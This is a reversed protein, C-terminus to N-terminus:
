LLAVQQNSGMAQEAQKRIAGLVVLGPTASGVTGQVRECLHNILLICWLSAKLDIQHLCEYCVNGKGQHSHSTDLQCFRVLM